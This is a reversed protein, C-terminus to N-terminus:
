LKKTLKIDVVIEKNNRLITVSVIDGVKKSYIYERLDCMRELDKDDIKLIIDGIQLGSKYAPSDMSIQAIYIGKNFKISTDLYPIVKKDYAFIGISAEEFTGEKELREVIPKIVNIPVAFGIGEASTIKVTNIGIIEGNNNILPGGSNGPNITADTQILNSMYVEEDTSKVSTNNSNKNDENFVITRDVASVIGSTVTKQFEFGIPNGIAYVSEGVKVSDSDGLIAYFTSRMNIKIIALDLNSDSWVVKANYKKGDEMTVYCTTNKGGSVHENTLIYGNESIIVGSGMGLQSVGDQTFITNGKERIRSIGVVSETVDELMREVTKDENNKEEITQSLREAPVKSYNIIEINNYMKILEYGIVLLIILCLILVRIEKKKNEYKNMNEGKRM